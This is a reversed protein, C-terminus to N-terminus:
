GTSAARARERLDWLRLTMDASGSVAIPRGEIQAATMSIVRNTHGALPQGIQQGTRLDWMRVTNDGGGSIAIPRGDLQTTAVAAVDSTHGTLPQGIQQGTTLDWTRLTQDSSASVAIPRGDLQTTAVAAVLSTHGTLPQGIQQGTTLDWTRLTNDRSASVAVPRGDLQTTVVGNIDGTHGALLQGIQRGSALDWIRIGHELRGTKWGGTVAVARGELQTTAVAALTTTQGIPQGVPQGTTLDWMRLTGDHGGSVAIPRGDLQTAALAFVASKHGVLPQGAERGPMGIQQGTALDWVRLIGTSEGCIAIPRGDLQTTAVARIWGTGSILIHEISAPEPDPQAGRFIGPVTITLVTALMILVAAVGTVVWRRRRNSAPEGPLSPAPPLVQRTPPKPTAVITGVSTAPSPHQASAPTHDLAARAAAALEKASRIRHKPDKAMGGSIVDDFAALAPDVTGPRPPDNHLHAGILGVQDAATFPPKGTLCEYLVCALSYVDVRHDYVTGLREPAMYALTGIVGDTAHTASAGLARVIGFDALYVFEHGATGAAPARSTVLANSPKVDRHILGTAHAADLADALQEILGVARRPALRGEQTILAALDTGDVLRMDIFLRGDIEGFDHIPVVHPNGLQAAIQAERRFRARVEPYDPGDSLADPLVKLAVVRDRTTDVARWVEGMGGRGLLADLRYPGLLKGTM